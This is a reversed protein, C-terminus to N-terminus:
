GADGSTREEGERLIRLVAYNRPVAGLAHAAPVAFDRAGIVDRFELPRSHIRLDDLALEALISQRHSVLRSAGANAGRMGHDVARAFFQHLFGLRSHLFMGSLVVALAHVALVDAASRLDKIERM